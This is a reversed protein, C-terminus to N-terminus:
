VRPKHPNAIMLIRDDDATTNNRLTGIMDASVGVAEDAIALVGGHIGQFADGERGKPPTRGAGLELGDHSRWVAGSTVYGPLEHDPLGETSHGHKVAEQYERYRERSKQRSTWTSWWFDRSGRWHSARRDM